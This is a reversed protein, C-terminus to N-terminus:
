SSRRALVRVALAFLVLSFGTLAALDIVAAGLSGGSLAARLAEVTYTLPLFRAIVQLVPPMSDVPVFVGGLFMMPFRIFNALTQAEFVERVSVSVFAGLASFAAASLLLALILLLWNVGAAGFFALAVVLVVGTVTLGFFMGGLMKGGLLAALSVPALMLRELSGIRREFVIVIAEMSTTGFLLTLGLLGPVLDGTDGPNRIAFALVFAFPFLIGWSINPPKFYYARLDKLAIYFIGRLNDAM